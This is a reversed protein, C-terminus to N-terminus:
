LHINTLLGTLCPGPCSEDYAVAGYNLIGILCPRHRSTGGVMLLDQATKDGEKINRQLIENLSSQRHFHHAQAHRESKTKKVMQQFECRPFLQLLQSFMSCYQSM